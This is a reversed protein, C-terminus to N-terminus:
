GQVGVFWPALRPDGLFPGTLVVPLGGTAWPETTAPTLARHDGPAVEIRPCGTDVVRVSGDAGTLVVFEQGPRECPAAEGARGAAADFAREGTFEAAYVLDFRDLRETTRYACVTGPQQHDEGDVAPMADLESFCNESGRASDLIRERLAADRTAVTVTSGNVERTERVWGGGLDVRGPELPVGIWVYPARPTADAIGGQCMDSQGLPRGVYPMTPDAEQLRTGTSTVLAGPEGCWFLGDDAGGGPGSEPASGWGWDAPVEVQADRWYETRVGGPSAGGDIGRDDPGTLWGVTVGVATVALVALAALLPALHRRLDVMSSLRARRAM